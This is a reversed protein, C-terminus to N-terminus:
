QITLKKPQASAKKPLSLMLVGNELKAQAGADDVEVPLMFTRAFRKMSREAYVINEGEKQASERKVEGEISVRQNDVSVKVDEKRVGPLEAEVEYTKDTETVNLRPSVIEGGTGGSLASYPTSPSFFDQFMNEVMREFQDEIPRYFSLPANERRVINM